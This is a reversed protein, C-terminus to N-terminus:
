GAPPPGITATWRISDATCKDGGALTITPELHGTARGSHLGINGIVVIELTGSVQQGSATTAQVPGTGLASFKVRVVRRGEATPHAPANVTEADRFSLGSACTVAYGFHLQVKRGSGSLTLAFAENQATTGSFSSAASAPAPAALVVLGAALLALRGQGEV